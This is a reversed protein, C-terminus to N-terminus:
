WQRRKKNEKVEATTTTTTDRRRRRNTVNQQVVFPQRSKKVNELYCLCNYHNYEAAYNIAIDLDWWKDSLVSIALELCNKHGNKAAEYIVESCLPDIFERFLITFFQTNNELLADDILEQYRSGFKKAVVTRLYTYYDTEFIYSIHVFDRPKIRRNLAYELCDIKGYRAAATAIEPIIPCGKTHLMKICDLHGGQAAAVLVSWDIPCGKEVLDQLQKISGVSAAKLATELLMECDCEMLYDFIKSSTKGCQVAMTLLNSTPHYGNEIAYKLSKLYGCEVADEILESSFNKNKLLKMQKFHKDEKSEDTHELKFNTPKKSTFLESM